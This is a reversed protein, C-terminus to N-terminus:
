APTAPPAAGLLTRLVSAQTATLTHLADTLHRSEITPPEHGDGDGDDSAGSAGLVARRILERVFAASVGDTADVLPRLDIEGTPVDRLYMELLRRRCDPDPLKIEVAQDIRGPRAALAPELLDLRNTTLVFIVDADEALGDMENLLQFLLPNTDGRGPLMRESAILDVDEVVVM